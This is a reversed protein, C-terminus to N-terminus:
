VDTSLQCETMQQSSPLFCLIKVQSFEGTWGEHRSNDRPIDKSTTRWTGSGTTQLIQKCFSTIRRSIKKCIRIYGKKIIKGKINHPSRKHQNNVFQFSMFSDRVLATEWSIRPVGQFKVDHRVKSNAGRQRDMVLIWQTKNHSGIM